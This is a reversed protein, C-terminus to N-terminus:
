PHHEPVHIRDNIENLVQQERLRLSEGRGAYWVALVITGTGIAAGVADAAWDALQASRGFAPQTLEDLVGFAAMIGWVACARVFLGARRRPLVVMAWLTSMVLYGSGHAAWDSVPVSVGVSSPDPIHTMTVWALTLVVAPAIALRSAAVFVRAM